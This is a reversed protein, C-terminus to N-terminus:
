ATKWGGVNPLPQVSAIRNLHIEVSYQGDPRHLTVTSEHRNIAAVRKRRIETLSGLVVVEGGGVLMVKSCVDM